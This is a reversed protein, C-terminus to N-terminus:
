GLIKATIAVLKIDQINSQPNRQIPTEADVAKNKGYVSGNIATDKGVVEQKASGPV